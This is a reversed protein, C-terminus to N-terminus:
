TRTRTGFISMDKGIGYGTDYLYLNRIDSSFPGISRFKVEQNYGKPGHMGLLDELLILPQKKAQSSPARVNDM